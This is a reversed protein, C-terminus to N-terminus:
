RSLNTLKGGANGLGGKGVGPFGRESLLENGCSSVVMIGCLLAYNLEEWSRALVFDNGDQHHFM